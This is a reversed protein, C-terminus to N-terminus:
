FTRRLTLGVSPGVKAEQIEQYLYARGGGRPGAYVDRSFVLARDTLNKVDLRLRWNDGFGKEAFADVIMETRDERIEDFRYEPQISTPTVDIGWRFRWSPLDQTFHIEGYFKEDGSFRRKEGTTPDTVAAWRYGLQGKLLGGTLFRTLPLTFDSELEDLRGDGINGRADFIDGNTDIFTLRDVVDTIEAHRYTIVVTADDGLSREYAAEAVWRQDPVLNRNGATIVNQDVSASSAFDGFDLQGVEREIRLRLEDAEGPKWIAAMRPKIYTLTKTLQSDGTQRLRSTEVRAGGELTLTPSTRWVTNAFVEGRREAVKVNAAPLDIVDGDEILSVSSDLVNYAGEAGLEIQWGGAFSRQVSARLIAEMSEGRDNSEETEGDAEEVEKEQEVGMNGLAVINLETEGFSREWNAGLEAAWETSDGRQTTVGARPLTARQTILAEGTETEYGANLTLDGGGLPSQFGATASEAYADEVFTQRADRLLTGTPGARWRRGVGTDERAFDTIREARFSGEILREGARSQGQLSVLPTVVGGRHVFAGLEAEGSVAAGRRRVVNALLTEGQMDIGAAGARILEVREVTGAQIRRLIDSLADKSAPRVGDILVNGAGGLGRVSQDPEKITFGPVRQVMDLASVPQASAFFASPFSTVPGTAVGPESALQEAVAPPPGQDIMM